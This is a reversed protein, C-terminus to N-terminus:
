TSEETAVPKTAPDTSLYTVQYASALDLTTGDELLHPEHARIKEPDRGPSFITTGGRSALDEALVHWDDLDIRLHRRSVYTSDHPLRVLHPWDGPGSPAPQRGLVVPRDLPVVEGDPLLLVGLQPRLVRAPEQAPVPDGCSRCVEALPDTLHGRPCRVALVTDSTAQELHGPAPPAAGAATASRMRTHRDHDGDEPLPAAAASARRVTGDDPEAVAAAFSAPQIPREASLIEDPIGDIVAGTPAAVDGAVPVAGTVQVAGAPVVGEVLLLSAGAPPPGVSLEWRDGHNRVVAGRQADHEGTAGDLWAVPSGELYRRVTATALAFAAPQGLDDWLQDLVATLAEARPVGLLLWRGGRAVLVGYGPTYRVEM